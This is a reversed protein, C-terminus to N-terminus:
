RRRKWNPSIIPMPMTFNSAALSAQYRTNRAMPASFYRRKGHRDKWSTVYKLERM